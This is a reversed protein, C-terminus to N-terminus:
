PHPPREIWKNVHPRQWLRLRDLVASVDSEFLLMDMHEKKLFGRESMGKLMTYMPDYFGDINLVCSPKDLLELQTLTLVQFLEELTGYGGPLAIFADALNEMRTKRIKLDAVVEYSKLGPHLQGKDYLNQPIIGIVEGGQDLCADAVLGMLGKTSGGYVVCIGEKALHAGLATAQLSFQVHDGFNSGCYVAISKIKKSTMIFQIKQLASSKNEIPYGYNIL